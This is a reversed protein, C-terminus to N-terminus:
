NIGVFANASDSLATQDPEPAPGYLPVLSNLVRPGPHSASALWRSCSCTSSSHPFSSVPSCASPPFRGTTQAPRASPDLLLRGKHLPDLRRFQGVPDAVLLFHQLFNLLGFRFQLRFRSRFGFCFRIRAPCAMFSLGVASNRLFRLPIECIRFAPDHFALFAEDLPVVTLRSHICVMLDDDGLVDSGVAAVHM